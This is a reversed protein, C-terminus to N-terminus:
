VYTRIAMKLHFHRIFTFRFILNCFIPINHLQYFKNWVLLLLSSIRFLMTSFFTSVTSSKVLYHKQFLLCQELNTRVMRANPKIVHFANRQITLPNLNTHVVKTPAWFRFMNHGCFKSKLRSFLNHSFFNCSNSIVKAYRFIKRVLFFHFFISRKNGAESNPLKSVLWYRSKCLRYLRSIKNLVWTEHEYCTYSERTEASTRVDVGTYANSDM